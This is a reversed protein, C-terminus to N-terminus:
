LVAHLVTRPHFGQLLRSNGCGDLNARPDVWGGAYDTGPRERPYLPRPTANVVWEWRAGLNLFFYLWIEVRGRHRSSTWPHFKGAGKVRANKNVFPRRRNLFPRSRRTASSGCEVLSKDSDLCVAPLVTRQSSLVSVCLMIVTFFFFPVSPLSDCEARTENFTLFDAVAGGGWM